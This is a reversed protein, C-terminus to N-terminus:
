HDYGPCYESPAPSWVAFPGRTLGGSAPIADVGFVALLLNVAHMVIVPVRYGLGYLYHLYLSDKVCGPHLVDLGVDAAVAGSFMLEIFAGASFGHIGIGVSAKIGWGFAFSSAAAGYSATNRNMPEIVKSVSVGVGQPVGIGFTLDGALGYYGKSDIFAQGALQPTITIDQTLSLELAGIPFSMTIPVAITTGKFSGSADLEEADIHVHIGGAGHIRISAEVIRGGDIVLRFTVEPRQVQLQFRARVHGHGHNAYAEVGIGDANWLPTFRFEGSSVPEPQTTPPPLPPASTAAGQTSAFGHDDAGGAFRSGPTTSPPPNSGPAGPTAYFLPQTLSIPGASALDANRIVDTLSVPGLVVRDTDGQHDLRLVRGVAQTTAVMIRGVALQTAGAARHDITWVLGDSSVSQVADAGGGLVVVDPQYGIGQDRGLSAGYLRQKGTLDTRRLELTSSPTSSRHPKVAHTGSSTCGTLGIAAAALLTLMPRTM